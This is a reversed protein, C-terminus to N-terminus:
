CFAMEYVSSGFVKGFGEGIKYLSPVYGGDWDLRKTTDM